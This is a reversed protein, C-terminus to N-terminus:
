ISPAPFPSNPQQKLVHVKLGNKKKGAHNTSSFSRNLLTPVLDADHGIRVAHNRGEELFVEDIQAFKAVIEVYQTVMDRPPVFYVREASSSDEDLVIDSKQSLRYFFGKQRKGDIAKEHTKRELIGQNSLRRLNTQVAGDKLGRSSLETLVENIHLWEDPSSELMLQFIHLRSEVNGFEVAGDADVIRRTREGILERLPAGTEAGLNMLHGLLPVTFEIGVDTQTAVKGVMGPVYEVVVLGEPLTNLLRHIHGSNFTYTEVGASLQDMTHFVEGIAVPTHGRLLAQSECKLETNTAELNHIVFESSLPLGSFEQVPSSM